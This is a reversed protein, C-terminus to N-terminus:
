LNLSFTQSVVNKVLYFSADGLFINPSKGQVNVPISKYKCGYM